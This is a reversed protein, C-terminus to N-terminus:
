ESKQIKAGIEKKEKEDSEIDREESIENQIEIENM